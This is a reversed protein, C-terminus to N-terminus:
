MKDQIIHNKKYFCSGVSGGFALTMTGKPFPELNNIRDVLDSVGNNNATRSVFNITPNTYTMKNKDLKTGYSLKAIDKLLFEKFQPM